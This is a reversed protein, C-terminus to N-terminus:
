AQPDPPLDPIPVSQGALPHECDAMFQIVGGSIIAHCRGDVWSADEEAGLQGSARMEAVIAARGRANCNVSPSFSPALADGNWTWPGSNPGWSKDLPIVHMGRCGPCFWALTRGGQGDRGHRLKSSLRGM